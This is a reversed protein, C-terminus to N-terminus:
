GEEGSGMPTEWGPAPRTERLRLKVQGHLLQSGFETWFERPSFDGAIEQGQKGLLVYPTGGNPVADTRRGFSWGSPLLITTDPYMRLVAAVKRFAEQADLDDLEEWRGAVPGQYSYGYVKGVRHIKIVSTMRSARKLEAYKM